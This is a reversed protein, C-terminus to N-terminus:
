KTPPVAKGEQELRRPDDMPCGAKWWRVDDTVAAVYDAASITHLDSIRSAEFGRHGMNLFKFLVADLMNFDAYVQRAIADFTPAAAPEPLDLVVDWMLPHHLGQDDMFNAKGFEGGTSRFGAPLKVKGPGFAFPDNWAPDLPVYARWIVHIGEHNMSGLEIEFANNYAPMVHYNAAPGTVRTGRNNWIERRLPYKQLTADTGRVSSILYIGGNEFREVHHIAYILGKREERHVARNLDVFEEFAADIDVVRVGDDFRPEFLARDIPGDYILDHLSQVTWADGTRIENIARVIRSRDDLLYVLRRKGDRWERNDTPASPKLLYARCPRGNVAQDGAPYREYKAFKDDKLRGGFDDLVHDVVQSIVNGRSKVVMRAQKSYRWTGVTNGIRVESAWEERFGVGREYWVGQLIQAPLEQGAPVTVVMQFTNARRVADRAQAFLSDDPRFLWGLIAVATLVAACAAIRQMWRPRAPRKAPVPPIAELGHLVREVLSDNKPWANGMRELTAEVEEHTKM